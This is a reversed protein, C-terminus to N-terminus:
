LVVNLDDFAVEWEMKLLRFEVGKLPLHFFIRTITELLNRKEISKM